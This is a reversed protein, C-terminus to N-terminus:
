DVRLASAPDVILARYAAPATALLAVAIVLFIAPIVAQPEWPAVNYLVSRLWSAAVLYAGLGLVIGSGILLILEASMLSLISAQPAGLAKRVGIERTRSKVAFDVLAFLGIATVLASIAGFIASLIALLQEQWLSTDVEEKLTRVEIFPLEPDLSHLVERMPSIVTEPRQSTRLHLTFTHTLGNVAPNYVTPPIPERLSRYKADSVVGIIESDGKAIGDPGAYGIRQGIPNRGPFFQRALTQNVIVKVPKVDRDFWTIDRGSLLRIGMTQFYGPTVNNLSASLFDAATMRTGMPALTAKVGTGRMLPRAALSASIVGHLASAKELLAKRLALSQAPTYAKLSPDLTFTVIHDRDFGPDLSRLRHLTDFLLAAGILILTCIAVQGIVMMNRPALRLTTGRGAQLTRRGRRAARLAPSLTFLIATLITIGLTFAAVRLDVGIHMELPQLVAARDRIPPLARSLIPLCAATLLIGTAGGLLALILGETFLQRALRFPSAGLALRIDIERARTVSRALLLGAVNACAMLLLLAAGAMLLQLGRSFQGRLLSVGKAVPELQLRSDHLDPSPGPFIQSFAETYVSRLLPDVESAARHIPVGNRLRAFIQGFLPRAGPKMEASREILLRETAATVRLDPSTDAALGNFGEASVGIITFPHGGLQVSRGLVSYDGQFRRQWYDYSLVMNTAAAHEDEANLLRGLVPRAGLSSFFNPSILHVRVREAGKGDSLPIDAEGQALVESVDSDRAAFEGSLVYPFDWTVFDKPHVEVLRVLNEPHPVTLDRLLLANVVSFILTNGAIGIALLLVAIAAFLPSKKLLRIGFSLDRLFHSM